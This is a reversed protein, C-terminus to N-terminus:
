RTSRPCRVPQDRHQVGHDDDPRRSRLRLLVSRRVVDQHRRGARHRVRGVRRAHSRARTPTAAVTRDGDPAYKGIYELMLDRDVLAPDLQARLADINRKEWHGIIDSYLMAAWAVGGELFAFNMGPFRRTVGGLFLSKALSHQGEALSGLHNYMYSSISRRPSSGSSARTSPSRSASSRRPRGVGPRLRVRQRPRVPRAVDGVARRAPRDGRRRRDPAARVRRVPGVQVRAGRGRVRARRRGRGPTHMPIAAVPALRDAYRRSRRPTAATSRAARAAGARRGGVHAPVRSGPEPVRRQLRSRARRATRLATRPVARDRPRDHEPGTREVVPRPGRADAGARRRGDRAVDHDPGLYAPLLRALAPHDLALGEQELYPALAPFYEATHGDIDIVPHSLSRRIAASTPSM